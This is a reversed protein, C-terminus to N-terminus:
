SKLICRKPSVKTIKFKVITFLGLFIVLALGMQLMIISPTVSYKQVKFGIFESFQANYKRSVINLVILNMSFAVLEILGFGGIFIKIITRDEIGLAKLIGLKKGIGKMLYSVMLYVFVLGILVGMFSNLIMQFNANKKSVYNEKVSGIKINIEGSDLKEIFKKYIDIGKSNNFYIINSNAVINSDEAKYPLIISYNLFAVDEDLIGVVRYDKFADDDIRNNLTIPISVGSLGGITFQRNGIVDGVKLDLSSSLYKGIIVEQENSKALRGKVILDKLKDELFEEEIGRLNYMIRNM